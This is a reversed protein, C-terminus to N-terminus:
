GRVCRPATAPRPGRRRRSGSMRRGGRPGRDGSLVIPLPGSDPFVSRSTKPNSSNWLAEVMKKSIHSVADMACMAPMAPMATRLIRHVPRLHASVLCQLPLSLSGRETNRNGNRVTVSIRAIFTRVRPLVDCQLVNCQM